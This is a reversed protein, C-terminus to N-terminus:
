SKKDYIYASVAIALQRPMDAVTESYGIVGLSTRYRGDACGCERHACFVSQSGHFSFFSLRLSAPSSIQVTFGRMRPSSAVGDGALHYADPSDGCARPLCTSFPEPSNHVPHIGAHAPFVTEVAIEILAAITFGRMRPSSSPMRLKERAVPPSDGCARPLRM